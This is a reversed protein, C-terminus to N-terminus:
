VWMRRWIFFYSKAPIKKASWDLVTRRKRKWHAKEAFSVWYVEDTHYKRRTKNLKLESCKYFSRGRLIRRRSFNTKTQLFGNETWRRQNKWFYKLIIQYYFTITFMSILATPTAYNEKKQLCLNWILGSWICEFTGFKRLHFITSNLTQIFM